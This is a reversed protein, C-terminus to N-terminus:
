PALREAVPAEPGTPDVEIGARLRYQGSVVVREGAQLGSTVVTVADDSPGATIPRNEAINDPTIVWAFLGQSSRQVVAPPVTVVNKLTDVLVRVRVFEGPWLRADENPFSAKLRITSTTQDIQNDILLLTGTALQHTNDQDFALVDVSGKLMAERVSGLDRQPLTFVAMAPKIQTLVTIPTQDSAHVINGADVQRFGVNGDIPAIITAYSLQTEASEIAAQDALITAKLNDVKAQQQDVAQPTGAGKVVLTQFRELDKQDAVLQAEDEARKAKAQDVVAQYPRPDVVALVDGKHVQQGEVFNVSQLKGDVQTRIAVANIAQVTGLGNLYVPVDRTSAAAVTVPVPVSQTTQASRGSPTNGKPPVAQFVLASGLAVAIIGIVWAALSRGPTRDGATKEAADLEAAPTEELTEPLNHLDQDIALWEM